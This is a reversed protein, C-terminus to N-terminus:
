QYESCAASHYFIFKVFFTEQVSKNTNFYFQLTIFMILDTNLSSSRCHLDHQKNKSSPLLIDFRAIFVVYPIHFITQWPLYQWHHHDTVCTWCLLWAQTLPWRDYGKGAEAAHNRITKTACFIHLCVFRPTNSISPGPLRSASPCLSSLPRDHYFLKNLGRMCM